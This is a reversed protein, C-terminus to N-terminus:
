LLLGQEHAALVAARRGNVGLKVYVARLHTKVTNVSVEMEVAIEDLSDLSTLRALVDRERPSLTATASATPTHVALVRAAFGMAGDTCGLLDVLLEGVGDGVVVFPRVAHRAEAIAVAERLARRTASRDDAACAGSAELL